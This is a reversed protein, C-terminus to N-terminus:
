VIDYEIPHFINELSIKSNNVAMINMKEYICKRVQVELKLM